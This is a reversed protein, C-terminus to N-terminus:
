DMALGLFYKFLKGANEKEIGSLECFMAEPHWQVGIVPLSEHVVAETLHRDGDDWSATEILGKGISKIGQHHRSNVTMSEGYLERMFTGEKLSVQHMNDPKKHKHPEAFPLDQYLSGGFYVDVFQIGRCIGLVPIRRKCAIDMIEKQCKDLNDDIGNSNGDDEEGWMKPNVDSNSGPVIIGGCKDVDAADLSVFSGWGMAALTDEYCKYGDDPGNAGAIMIKKEMQREGNTLDILNLAATQM